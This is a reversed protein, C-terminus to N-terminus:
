ALLMTIDKTVIEMIDSIQKITLESMITNPNCIAQLKGLVINVGLDNMKQFGDRKIWALRDPTSQTFDRIEGKLYHELEEISKRPDLYSILSQIEQAQQVYSIPVQALQEGM